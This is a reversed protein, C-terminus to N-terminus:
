YGTDTGEEAQRSPYGRSTKTRRKRTWQFSGEASLLTPPHPLLLKAAAAALWWWRLKSRVLLIIREWFYQPFSLLFKKVEKNSSNGDRPPLLRIAVKAREGEAIAIPLTLTSQEDQQQQQQQQILERRAVEGRRELEGMDAAQRSLRSELEAIRDELETKESRLKSM